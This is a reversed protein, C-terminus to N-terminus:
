VNLQKLKKLRAERLLLSKYKDVDEIVIRLPTPTLAGSRDIYGFHITHKINDLNPSELHTVKWNNPKSNFWWKTKNSGGQQILELEKTEVIYRIDIRNLVTNVDEAFVPINCKCNFTRREWNKPKPQTYESFVINTYEEIKIL